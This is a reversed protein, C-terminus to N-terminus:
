LKAPTTRTVLPLWLMLAASAVFLATDPLTLTDTRV